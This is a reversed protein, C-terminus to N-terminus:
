KIATYIDEIEIYEPRKLELLSYLDKITKSQKWKNYLIEKNKLYKDYNDNNKQRPIDYKTSYKNRNKIIQENNEMINMNFTKVDSLLKTKNNDNKINIINDILVYGIETISKTM